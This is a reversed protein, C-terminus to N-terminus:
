NGFVTTGEDGTPEADIAQDFADVDGAHPILPKDLPRCIRSQLRQLRESREIALLVAQPNMMLDFPSVPTVPTVGQTEM